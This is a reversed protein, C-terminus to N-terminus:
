PLSHVSVRKIIFDGGRTAMGFGTFPDLFSVDRLDFVTKGDLGVRMTGDVTRTWQLTHVKKDELSFPGPEIAITRTGSRSTIRLALGEGVMYSLRYGSSRDSGQYPGVTLEGKGIWSSIGLEISFANSIPTDSFISTPQITPTGSASSGSSGGLAQNLIQGFIQAAADKSTSSSSTAKVEDLANRLGWGEEIWYRGKGITWAPNQTFDGDTFDDFLVKKTWARETGNVLDRLDKLFKPDAARDKEAQDVLANLRDVLGKLRANNATQTETSQEATGDPNQWTDYTQATVPSPSVVVLIGLLAGLAPALIRTAHITM